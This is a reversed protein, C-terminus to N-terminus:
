CRHGTRGPAVGELQGSRFASEDVRVLPRPLWAGPCGLLLAHPELWASTPGM